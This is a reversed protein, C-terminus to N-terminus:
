LLGEVAEKIERIVGDALVKPPDDCQLKLFRLAPKNLDCPFNKKDESVAADFYLSASTFDHVKFAAYGLVYFPSGKHAYEYRASNNKQEQALFELASQIADFNKGSDINDRYSSFNEEFYLFNSM